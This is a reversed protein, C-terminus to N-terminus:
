SQRWFFIWFRIIELRKGDGQDLGGDDAQVM